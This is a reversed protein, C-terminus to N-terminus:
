ADFIFEWKFVTCIYFHQRLKLQLNELFFLNGKM